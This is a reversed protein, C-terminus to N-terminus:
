RSALLRILWTVLFQAFGGFLMVPVDYGIALAASRIRAPFQEALATSLPGVYAALLGSLLMQTLLLSGFTRNEQLLSFLPYALALYAILTGILVPKRGIHDSLAGFLPVLVVTCALSISQALFAEDLPFNLQTRAFTPMYVVIVYFGITANASLGMSVLVERQFRALTKALARREMPSGRAQLFVSTEALRRRIFLGVPGILLGFLFPIRWGWSDLAAASLRSTVLAGLLSGILLAVGQGVMQWSGYFGRRDAPASEILYITANPFEGGTALGQLLRALVIITPAAVGIAAYTPAFAIMAISATMTGIILLM